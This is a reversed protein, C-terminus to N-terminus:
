FMIKFCNELIGLITRLIPRNRRYDANDDTSECVLYTTRVGLYRCNPISLIQGGPLFIWAGPSGAAGKCV